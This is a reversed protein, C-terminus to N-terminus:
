AWLLCAIGHVGHPFSTKKQSLLSINFIFMLMTCGGKVFQDGFFLFIVFSDEPCMTMKRM